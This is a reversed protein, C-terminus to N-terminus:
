PAYPSFIKKFLRRLRHQAAARFTLVGVSLFRSLATLEADAAEFACGRM